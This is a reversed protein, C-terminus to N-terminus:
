EAALSACVIEKDNRAFVHKDAFAPHSWCVGFKNKDRRRPLQAATRDILKARSIEHFGAPSLKSIILEGAENFMWIREGNKVMHINSWRDPPTATKDEWVRDGTKAKLCRLEGYSDVGYIYEGALLPTAIISHLADTDRESRGQRRWLQEVGISGNTSDSILKLMLSGDYFSTLFLRNELVVPSAIAIVMKAPPFRHKWYAEGSQPNLGVVNDGTWCVLVRKGGQEIMIPASYSTRDELATWRQKGTKKDFAVLCAGRGGIQLIVLDGEVLPSSAIGWIPMRGRDIKYETRLDKQWLKKGTAAEFCHFDGMSGLVYARGDNITVAARPGASYSVGRYTCAYEYSWIKKGSMADFCHVREMQKPETVRDTIYVRGKAVTPGSYGASIPQRWRIKLRDSPFKDIIGTERWVGDRQPGRWQPWDDGRCLAFSQTVALLLITASALRFSRNMRTIEMQKIRTTIVVTTKSYPNQMM